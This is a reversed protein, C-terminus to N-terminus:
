LFMLKGVMVLYSDHLLDAIIVAAIGEILQFTNRADAV